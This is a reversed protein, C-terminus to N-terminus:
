DRASVRNRGALKAAYLRADARAFLELGDIIACESLRAVGISVTVSIAGAGVEVKLEGVARRIAEALESAATEDNAAARTLVAFEEGGYRAFIDTEGLVRAGALSIAKLVEDGAAHGFRDNVAKFHDADIMLIAIDSGDRRTREIATALHEFLSRRNMLATLTDRMSSEYLKRQLSEEEEDLIAFRFTYEGGIQVRDGNKLRVSRVPRGGVFTGNTSGLDELLYEREADRTIRAHERSVSPEDLVIDVNAGRGLLTEESELSFTTGVGTGRLMTLTARDASKTTPLVITHPTEHAAAPTPTAARELTPVEGTIPELPPLTARLNALTVRDRESPSLRITPPHPRLSSIPTKQGGREGRAGLGSDREDDVSEGTSSM